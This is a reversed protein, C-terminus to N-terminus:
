YYTYASTYSATGNNIVQQTVRGRSDYSYTYSYNATYSSGSIVQTIAVTNILNVNATGLFALGFGRSDITSLYTYNTTITNNTASDAQHEVSTTVNGGSITYTISDFNGTGTYSKSILYGSSNYAYLYGKTDTTARGAANITYSTIFPVGAITITQLVSGQSYAYTTVVTDIQARIQRGLSDYTYTNAYGSDIVATKVESVTTNAPAIAADKRCSALLSIFFLIAPVIIFKARPMM